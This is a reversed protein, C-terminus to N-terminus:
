EVDEEVFRTVTTWLTEMGWEFGARPIREDNGHPLKSFQVDPPFQVPSFGYVTVGLQELWKSDSFGILVWPIVTAGDAQEHVVNEILRYLPTDTTNSSPPGSRMVEIDFDDGIVQHVEDLFQEENFGPLYRGDIECEAIAPVVNTKEGARIVTPVATNHLSSIFNRQKEEDGIMKLALGETLRWKLMKTVFGFPGMEHSLADFYRATEPVVHHPLYQSTLRQIAATLKQVSSDFPVLSGHGPEGHARIKFWCFGREATQVLYVQKGGPLHVNFGGFENLGYGAELLDGHNEVLWKMGYTSGAEEDAVCVLVVDRNPKINRRKLGIFTAICMAVHHKMDVAGRGYIWGDKEEAAFPSVSWFQEEVGVVDVHGTLILAPESGGKIRAVLNARGPASELITSKIGEKKLLAAIWGICAREDGPPNVTRFKLLSKFIGVAEAISENGFPEALIDVERQIQRGARGAVV